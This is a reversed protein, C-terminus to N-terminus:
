DCDNPFIYDFTMDYDDQKEQTIGELREVDQACSDHKRGCLQSSRRAAALMGEYFSLNDDQKFLYELNEMTVHSEKDAM